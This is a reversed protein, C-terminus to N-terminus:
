STTERDEFTRRTYTRSHLERPGQQLSCQGAQSRIPCLGGSGSALQEYLIQPVLQDSGAPMSIGAQHKIMLRAEPVPHLMEQFDQLLVERQNECYSGM